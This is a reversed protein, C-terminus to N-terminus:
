EQYEQYSDPITSCILKALEEPALGVKGEIYMKLLTIAGDIHSIITLREYETLVERKENRLKVASYFDFSYSRLFDWFSDQGETDKVNLFFSQKTLMFSLLHEAIERWNHGNFDQEITRDMFSRYYLHMLEHKDSFFKYFTARSVQAENLIDQVTVRQFPRQEFLSFAADIIIQKTNMADGYM